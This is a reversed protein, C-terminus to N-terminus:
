LDAKLVEHIRFDNTFFQHYPELLSDFFIFDFTRGKLVHPEFKQFEIEDKNATQIVRQAFVLGEINSSILKNLTSGIADRRSQEHMALYLIKLGGSSAHLLSVINEIADM